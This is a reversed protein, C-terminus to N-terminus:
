KLRRKAEKLLNHIKDAKLDKTECVIKPEGKTAQLYHTYDRDFINIGFKAPNTWVETGPFPVM